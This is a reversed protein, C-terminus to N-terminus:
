RTADEWPATGRVIMSFFRETRVSVTRGWM